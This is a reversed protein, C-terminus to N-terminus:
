VVSVNLFLMAMRMSQQLSDNFTSISTLGLLSKCFFDICLPLPRSTQQEYKTYTHLAKLLMEVSPQASVAGGSASSSTSVDKVTNTAEDVSSPGEYQTGENVAPQNTTATSADISASSGASFFSTPARAPEKKAIEDLATKVGELEIFSRELQAKSALLTLQDDELVKGTQRQAEIAAIRELRFDRLSNVNFL